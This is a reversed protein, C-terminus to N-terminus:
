RERSNAEWAQAASLTRDVEGWGRWGQVAAGHGAASSTTPTHSSSSPPWTTRLCRWGTRASPRGCSCCPCRRATTACPPAPRPPSPPLNLPAAPHVLECVAPGGEELCAALGGAWGGMCGGVQVYFGLVLCYVFREGYSVPVDCPWSSCEGWYLKTDYFWSCPHPTRSPRLKSAPDHSCALLGHTPSRPSACHAPVLHTVASSLQTRWTTPLEWADIALCWM